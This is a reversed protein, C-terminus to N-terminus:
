GGGRGAIDAGGTGGGDPGASARQADGPAGRPHPGTRMPVQSRHAGFEGPRADCLGM